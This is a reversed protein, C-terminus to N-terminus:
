VPLTPQPTSFFFSAGPWPIARLMGQELLLLEQHLMGSGGCREKRLSGHTTGVGCGSCCRPLYRASVHLLGNPGCRGPMKSHTQRQKRTDPYRSPPFPFSLSLFPLFLIFIIKHIMYIFIYINRSTYFLQRSRIQHLRAYTVVSRTCASCCHFSALLISHASQGSVTETVSCCPSSLIHNYSSYELM